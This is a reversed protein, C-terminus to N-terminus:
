ARRSHTMPTLHSIWPSKAGANSHIQLTLSTLRHHDNIAPTVPVSTPHNSLIPEANRWVGADEQKLDNYTLGDHFTGFAPIGDRSFM